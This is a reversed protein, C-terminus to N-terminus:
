KPQGDKVMEFVYIDEDIGHALYAKFGLSKLLLHVELKQESVPFELNVGSKTDVLLRNFLLENAAGELDLQEDTHPFFYHWKVIHKLDSIKSVVLMAVLEDNCFAGYKSTYASKLNDAVDGESLETWRAIERAHSPVLKKVVLKTEAVAVSM